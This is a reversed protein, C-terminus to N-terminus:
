QKGLANTYCEIISRSAAM